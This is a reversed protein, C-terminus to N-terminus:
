VRNLLGGGGPSSYCGRDWGYPHLMGKKLGVDWVLKQSLGVMRHWESHKHRDWMTLAATRWTVDMIHSKGNKMGCGAMMRDTLILLGM